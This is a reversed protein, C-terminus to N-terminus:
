QDGGRNRVIGGQDARWCRCNDKMASIVESMLCLGPWSFTTASVRLRGGADWPGGTSVCGFGAGRGVEKVATESSQSSSPNATGSPGTKAAMASACGTSKEAIAEWCCDHWSTAYISVESLMCIVDCAIPPTEKSQSTEIPTNRWSTGTWNLSGSCEMRWGPTRTVCRRMVAWNQQGWIALAHRNQCSTLTCL